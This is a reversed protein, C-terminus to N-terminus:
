WEGTIRASLCDSNCGHFGRLSYNGLLCCAFLVFTPLNLVSSRKEPNRELLQEMGETGVVETFHLDITRLLLKSALLSLGGGFIILLTNVIPFNVFHEPFVRNLLILSNFYYAFCGLESLSDM